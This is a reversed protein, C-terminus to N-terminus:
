ESWRRRLYQTPAVPITDSALFADRYRRAISALGPAPPNADPPSTPAVMAPVPEPARPLREFPYLGLHVPRRRNSFLKM